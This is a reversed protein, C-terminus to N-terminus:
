TQSPTSFTIIKQWDRNKVIEKWENLTYFDGNEHKITIQTGRREYEELLIILAALWLDEADIALKLVILGMLLKTGKADQEEATQLTAEHKTETNIKDCLERTLVQLEENDSDNSSLNLILNM